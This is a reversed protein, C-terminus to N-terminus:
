GEIVDHDAAPAFGLLRIAEADREAAGQRQPPRGAGPQPRQLWSAKFGRWGRSVIESVAEAPTVGAKTSETKILGWAMPTLPQRIATKRYAIFGEAMEQDLGDAVLDQVSSLAPKVRERTTKHNGSPEISPENITIPASVAPTPHLIQPPPPASVAPTPHLIQPPASDAPTCFRRPHPASDAPTPNCIRRHDIIYVTSRGPREIRELIRESEFNALHGQVTRESMCCKKALTRVSPYCMGEDSANDCIALLVLKAGPNKIGTFKWAAAMLTISM